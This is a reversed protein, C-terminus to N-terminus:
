NLKSIDYNEELIELFNYKKKAKLINNLNNIHIDNIKKNKVILEFCKIDEVDIIYNLVYPEITIDHVLIEFLEYCKKMVILYVFINKELVHLCHFYEELIDYNKINILNFIMLRSMRYNHNCLFRFIKYSKFDCCNDFIKLIEYNDLINANLFCHM